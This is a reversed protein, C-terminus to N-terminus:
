NPPHHSIFFVKKGAAVLHIHVIHQQVLAALVLLPHHLTPVDLPHAAKVHSPKRKVCLVTVHDEKHCIVKSRDFWPRKEVLSGSFQGAVIHNLHAHAWFHHTLQTSHQSLTELHCECQTSGKHVVDQGDEEGGDEKDKDAM